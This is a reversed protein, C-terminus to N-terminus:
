CNDRRRTVCILRGIDAANYHSCVLIKEVNVTSFFRSFRCLAYILFDIIDRYNTVKFALHQM